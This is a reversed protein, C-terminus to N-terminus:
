QVTAEREDLVLTTAIGIVSIVLHVVLANASVIQQLNLYTQGEMVGLVQRVLM